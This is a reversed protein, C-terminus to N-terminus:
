TASVSIAHQPCVGVCSGCGTCQDVAISPRSLADLSIAGESCAFRCSFCVVAQWAFCQGANLDAVGLRPKAAPACTVTEIPCAEACDGCWTCAGVSFDLWPMGAFAHDAPHIKVIQSECAQACVADCDSCIDTSAHGDIWPPAVGAPRAQRDIEGRGERTLFGGRLFGRRAADVM